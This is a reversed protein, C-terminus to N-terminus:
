HALSKVLDDVAQPLPECEAARATTFEVDLSDRGGEIMRALTANPGLDIALNCGDEFSLAPRGGVTIDRTAAGKVASVRSDFSVTVRQQEGVACTFRNASLAEVGEVGLAEAVGAKEVATCLDVTGSSGEPWSITPVGKALNGLVVKGLGTVLDCAGKSTGAGGNVEIIYGRDSVLTRSSCRSQRPATDLIQGGPVKQVAVESNNQRVDDSLDARGPALELWLSGGPSTFWCSGLRSRMFGRGIADSVETAVQEEPALACLDISQLEGLAPETPLDREGAGCGGLAAAAGVALVTALSRLGRGKGGMDIGM